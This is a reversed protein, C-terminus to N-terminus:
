DPVKAPAPPRPPHLPLLPHLAPWSPPACTLAGRPAVPRRAALRCAKGSPAAAAHGARQKGTTWPCRPLQASPGWTGAAEHCRPAASPSGPRRAARGQGSFQSALQHRIRYPPARWSCGECELEDELEHRRGRRGAEPRARGAAHDLVVALLARQRGDGGAGMALAGEGQAQRSGGCAGLPSGVRVSCTKIPPMGLSALSAAMRSNAAPAPSTCLRRTGRSWACFVLLPHAPQQQPPPPPPAPGLSPRRWPQQPPLRAPLEIVGHGCRWVCRSGRM